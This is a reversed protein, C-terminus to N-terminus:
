LRASAAILAMVVRQAAYGSRYQGTFELMFFAADGM